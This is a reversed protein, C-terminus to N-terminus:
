TSSMTRCADMLGIKWLFFCHYIKTYNEVSEVLGFSILSQQTSNLFM